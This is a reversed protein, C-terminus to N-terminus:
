DAPALFWLGINLLMGPYNIDTSILNFSPLSNKEIKSKQESSFSRSKECWKKFLRQILCSFMVIM